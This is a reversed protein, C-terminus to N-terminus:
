NGSGKLATRIMGLHKKYLSTVQKYSKAIEMEKLLQEEIVVNNGDPSTEYTNKSKMMGQVSRSNTGTPIHGAQTTKMPMSPGPVAVLDQFSQRKIEKAKYGPTNANAINEAVVAQQAGLNAMKNNMMRFLTLKSLDM